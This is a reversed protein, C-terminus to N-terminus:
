NKVPLMYYVQREMNLLMVMYSDIINALFNVILLGMYKLLLNRVNKCLTDSKDCYLTLLLYINYILLTMHLLANFTIYAIMMGYIILSNLTPIFCSCLSVAILVLHIGVVCFIIIRPLKEMTESFGLYGFIGTTCLLIGCCVYTVIKVVSINWDDSKREIMM